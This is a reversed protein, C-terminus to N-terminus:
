RKLKTNVLHNIMESIESMGYPKHIVDDMGSDLMESKQAERVNASVGLVPVHTQVSNEYERIAQTASNGDMVPMEQDMLICDFTEERIAELAEQGNGAESIEFGLSKLKRCLIRRNLVNDEVVLLRRPPIVTGDSHTRLAHKTKQPRHTDSEPPKGATDKEDNEASLAISRSHRTREDNATNPEVDGTRTVKPREPIEPEATWENVGTLENGEAQLRSALYEIEDDGYMAPNDEESQSEVRRTRFFFGFTSGQGERSSVGIEGGHLHCLQRSVNLGLGSGGYVSETKPTAQNFREFLRKQAQDSIGIGTDRVAMMIYIDEGDGWEPRVTADRRLAAEGSEFFVVNPPYSPPRELSAGMSVRISKENKSRSTFKIANSLLNVLVQSMRDLDALVRDTKCDTYSLDLVYEFKINHKRIEPQFMRLPAALHKRPQVVQPTLALMSADLKSFLLVDNVVKKQHACCIGITRAVEAVAALADKNEDPNGGGAASSAELIDEACHLIASLPNRIEHSIMDIFREQQEKQEEAERAIQTQSLEAEKEPTIDTVTCLSGGQDAQLGFRQADARALRGLTLLCWLRHQDNTRYELRLEGTSDIAQHYKHVAADYDSPLISHSWRQLFSGAGCPVLERFRRNDFLFRGNSDFIAIGTPLIDALQQASITDTGVASTM